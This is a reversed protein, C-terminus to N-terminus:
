LLTHFSCLLDGNEAEEKLNKFYGKNHEASPMQRGGDTNERRKQIQIQATEPSMLASTCLHPFGKETQSGPVTERPGCQM